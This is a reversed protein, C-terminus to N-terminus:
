ARYVTNSGHKETETLHMYQIYGTGRKVSYLQGRYM